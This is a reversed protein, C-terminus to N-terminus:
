KESVGGGSVGYIAQDAGEAGFNNTTLEIHDGHRYVLFLGGLSQNCREIQEMLQNQQEEGSGREWLFWDLVPPPIM